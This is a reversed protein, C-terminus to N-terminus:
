GQEGMVFPVHVILGSGKLEFQAYASDKIKRILM